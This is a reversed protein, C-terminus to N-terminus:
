SDVAGKVFRVTRRALASIAPSGEGAIYSEIRDHLPRTWREPLHAAGNMIGVISGASAGNCDTDLGLMVAIGITRELDREGYLLALSVIAANNITHVRHYGAFKDLLRTGAKEWDPEQRREELTWEIAEHLRSRKPIVSLGVRIVAEIESEGFSAANMAAIFMAGYIGNATHSLAADRFAMNAAQLPDGPNVYGYLDTRIQAGIWERYPNLHVAADPVPLGACLNLYAAREATYTMLPPVYSLWMTGVDDTRFGRGYTELTKLALITYDMDDDRPMARCYEIANATYGAEMWHEVNAPEYRISFYQRLPYAHHRELLERIAARPWGEVPKGLLCGASRGLWAGYIKDYLQETDLQIEIQKAGCSEAVIAEWVSPEVYPYSAERGPLLGDAMDRYLQRVWGEVARSDSLDLAAAEREIEDTSRGEERLQVLEDRLLDTWGILHM